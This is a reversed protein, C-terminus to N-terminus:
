GPPRGAINLGSLGLRWRVLSPRIACLVEGLLEAAEAQWRGPEVLDPIGGQIVWCTGVDVDLGGSLV